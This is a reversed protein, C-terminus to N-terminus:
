QRGTAAARVRRDYENKQETTLKMEGTHFVVQDIGGTFKNPVTYQDDVPTSNDAASTSVRL